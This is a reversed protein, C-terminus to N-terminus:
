SRFPLPKSREVRTFMTRLEKSKADEIKERAKAQKSKGRSQRSNETKDSLKDMIMLDFPSLINDM